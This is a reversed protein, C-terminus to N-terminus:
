FSGSSRSAVNHQDDTWPTAVSRSSPGRPGTPLPRWALRSLVSSASWTTRTRLRRMSPGVDDGAEHLRSAVGHSLRPPHRDGRSSSRGPTPRLHRPRARLADVAPANQNLTLLCRGQGLLASAHEPVVGFREWRIAADTYADAAVRHDGRREAIAANAAVLAHETYPHRPEVGTVLQQAMDIDDFALATRVMRNMWVRYYATKRTGPTADVEALLDAVRDPRGLAAHAAATAALGVVVLQPDGSDRVASYLGDMWDAALQPRGRLVHISAQAARLDVLASVDGAADLDAALDAAVDLAQDHQGTDFLLSLSTAKMIQTLETLGRPNAFAIGAQLVDLGAAPGDFLWLDMAYNNHALAVDRGQGAATALDIAHQYDVLGGRDGLLGRAGGRHGLAGAPPEIGLEDALALAQDADDIASQLQGQMMEDAARQGLAHILEPGPPLGSLM